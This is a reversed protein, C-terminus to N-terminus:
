RALILVVLLLTIGAAVQIPVPLAKIKDLMSQSAVGEESVGDLPNEWKELAERVDIKETKNFSQRCLSCFKAASHEEWGCAPCIITGSRASRRNGADRKEPEAAVDDETSVITEGSEAYSESAAHLDPSEPPEPPVPKSVKERVVEYRATAGLDELVKLLRRATRYPMNGAVSCPLRRVLARARPLPTKIRMSLKLAFTDPTEQERDISELFVRCITDDDPAKEAVASDVDDESSAIKDLAQRAEIDGPDLHVRKRFYRAREDSDSGTPENARLTKLTVEDIKRRYGVPDKIYAALTRNNLHHGSSAMADELDMIVESIHEYRRDRERELLRAVIAGYSPDVLPNTEDLPPVERSQIDDIVEAFSSGGFPRHGSLLEFAVVGLSFIDSQSDVVEGRAQEPSMYAPTGVIKGTQTMVQLNETDKALGFDAVKIDGQLTYILNAPKIDRHVLGSGHAAELGMCVKMLIAYCIDIPIPKHENILTDLALGDYFEMVIYYNSESDGYDLVNVINPHQVRAAVEAEQQFRAVFTENQALHPQLVKIAVTKKLSLRRAKYVVSMGGVGVQEFSDYGDIHFVAQM